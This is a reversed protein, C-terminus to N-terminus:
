SRRLREPLRRRRRPRLVPTKRRPLTTIPKELPLPAAVAEPDGAAAPIPTISSVGPFISCSFWIGPGATSIRRTRPPPSKRSCCIRGLVWRASWGPQSSVDTEVVSLRIQNPLRRAGNIIDGGQSTDADINLAFNYEIETVGCFRYTYDIGSAIIYATSKSM